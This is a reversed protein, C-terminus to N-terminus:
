TLGKPSGKRDEKNRWTLEQKNICCHHVFEYSSILRMILFILDIGQRKQQVMFLHKEWWEAWSKDCVAIEPFSTNIPSRRLQSQGLVLLAVCTRRRDNHRWDSPCTQFIVLALQIAVINNPWQTATSGINMCYSRFGSGLKSTHPFWILLLNVGPTAVVLLDHKNFACLM